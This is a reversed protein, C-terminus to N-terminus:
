FSRSDTLPAVIATNLRAIYCSVGVTDVIASVHTVFGRGGLSTRVAYLRRSPDDGIPIPTPLLRKFDHKAAVHNRLADSRAFVDSCQLCVHKYESRKHISTIHRSLNARSLTQGCEPCEVDDATGQKRRPVASFLAQSTTSTVSDDHEPAAPADAKGETPEESAIAPASTTQSAPALLESPYYLGAAKLVTLEQASHVETFHSPSVDVRCEACFNNQSIARQVRLRTEEHGANEQKRRMHNDKSKSNKFCTGCV